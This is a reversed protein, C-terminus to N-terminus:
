PHNPKSGRVPRSWKERLRQHPDPDAAAAADIEDRVEHAKITERLGKTEARATADSRGKAYLGLAGILALFAGAVWKGLDGTLLDILTTM